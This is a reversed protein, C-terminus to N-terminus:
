KLINLRDATAQQLVKIIRSNLSSHKLTIREIRLINEPSFKGTNRELRIKGMIFLDERLESTMPAKYDLYLNPINPKQKAGFNVKYVLYTTLSALGLFALGFKIERQYNQVKQWIGKIFEM